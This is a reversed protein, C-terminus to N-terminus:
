RGHTRLSHALQFGRAIAKNFELVTKAVMAKSELGPAPGAEWGAARQEATMKEETTTRYATNTVRPPTPKPTFCFPVLLTFRKFKVEAQLFPGPQKGLTPAAIWIQYFMTWRSPDYEPLDIVPGKAKELVNLSRPHAVSSIIIPQYKGNKVAYTSLYNHTESGDMHATTHHITNSDSNPSLHISFRSESIEKPRPNDRHESNLLRNVHCTINLAGNTKERISVLRM